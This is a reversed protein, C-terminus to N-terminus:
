EDKPPEPLPMWHTVVMQFGFSDRIANEEDFCTTTWLSDDGYTVRRWGTYICHSVSRMKGTGNIARYEARVLILVPEFEEPLRDATSIWENM